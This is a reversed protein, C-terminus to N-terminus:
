VQRDAKKHLCRNEVGVEVRGVRKGAFGPLLGSLMNQYYPLLTSFRGLFAVTALALSISLLM